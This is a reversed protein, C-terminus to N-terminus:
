RDINSQPVLPSCRKGGITGIAIKGAAITGSNGGDLDDRDARPPSDVGGTGGLV